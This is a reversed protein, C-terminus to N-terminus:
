RLLKSSDAVRPAAADLSRVPATESEEGSLRGLSATTWRCGGAISPASAGGSGVKSTRGLASQPQGVAGQVQWACWRLLMQLRCPM